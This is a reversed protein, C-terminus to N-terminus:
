GPVVQRPRARSCRHNSRRPDAADLNKKGVATLVTLVTTARRPAGSLAEHSPSRNLETRLRALHGMVARELDGITLKAM